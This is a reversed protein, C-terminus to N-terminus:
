SISIPTDNRPHPSTELTTLDLNLVITILSLLPVKYLATLRAAAPINLDKECTVAGGGWKRGVM